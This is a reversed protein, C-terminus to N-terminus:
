ETLGFVFPQSYAARIAEGNERYPQCTSEHIADLAAQDLRAYGSSRQLRVDEIRGNLGVVFSVVATGNEGHRKSLEPYDPKALNCDVHPVSKPVSSTLSPREIAPTSAPAASETAPAVVPAPAVPPTPASRQPELTPAPTRPTTRQRPAISRVRPTPIVAHPALAKTETQPAPPQPQQLKIDVQPAASLIRVVITNSEIRRVVAPQNTGLVWAFLGAHACVVAALVIGARRRHKAPPMGFGSSRIALPSM